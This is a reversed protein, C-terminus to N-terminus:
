HLAAQGTARADIVAEALHTMVLQYLDYRAEEADFEHSLFALNPLLTGTELDVLDGRWQAAHGTIRVALRAHALMEDIADALDRDSEPDDLDVTM